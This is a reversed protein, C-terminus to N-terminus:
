AEATSGLHLVLRELYMEPGGLCQAYTKTFEQFKQEVTEKHRLLGMETDRDREGVSFEIHELETYFQAWAQLLELRAKKRVQDVWHILSVLLPKSDQIVAYQVRLTAYSQRLLQYDVEQVISSTANFPM